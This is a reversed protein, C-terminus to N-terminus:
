EISLRQLYKYSPCILKSARKGYGKIEEGAFKSNMKYSIYYIVRRLNKMIFAIDNSTFEIDDLMIQDTSIYIVIVPKKYEFMDNHWKKIGFHIKAGNSLFGFCSPAEKEKKIYPQKSIKSNHYGFWQVGKKFRNTTLDLYASMNDVKPDKPNICSLWFDAGFMYDEEKSTKKVKIYNADQYENFAVLLNNEVVHGFRKQNNKNKEKMYSLVGKNAEKCTEFKIIERKM